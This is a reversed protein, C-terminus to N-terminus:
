IFVDRIQQPDEQVRQETTQHLAEAREEEARLREREACYERAHRELIRRSRRLRRISLVSNHFSYGHATRLHLMEQLGRKMGRSCHFCYVCACQDRLREITSAETEGLAQKVVDGCVWCNVTVLPNSCWAAVATHCNKYRRERFTVPAGTCLPLYLKGIFACEGPQSPDDDYKLAGGRCIPCSNQKGTAVLREYSISPLYSKRCCMNEVCELCIYHDHECISVFVTVTKYCVPCEIKRVPESPAPTTM